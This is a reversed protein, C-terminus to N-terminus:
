TLAAGSHTLFRSSSQDIQLLVVGASTEITWMPAGSRRATVVVEEEPEPAAEQATVSSAASASLLALPLLLVRSSVM